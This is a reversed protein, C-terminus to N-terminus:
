MLGPLGAFPRQAATVDAAAAPRSGMAPAGRGGPRRRAGPPGPGPGRGADGPAGALGLRPRSRLPQAEMKLLPNLSWRPPNPAEVKDGLPASQAQPPAQGRTQTGCGPLGAGGGLRACPKGAESAGQDCHHRTSGARRRRRPRASIFDATALGQRRQGLCKEPGADTKKGQFDLKFYCVAGRGEHATPLQALVSAARDSFHTNEDLVFGGTIRPPGASSFTPRHARGVGSASLAAPRESPAVKKCLFFPMPAVRQAKRQNKPDRAASM